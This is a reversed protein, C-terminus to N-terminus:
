RDGRLGMGIGASWGRVRVTPQLIVSLSAPFRPVFRPVSPVNGM